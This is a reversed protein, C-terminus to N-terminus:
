VTKFDAFLEEPVLLWWYVQMTKKFTNYLVTPHRAFLASGSRPATQVWNNLVLSMM